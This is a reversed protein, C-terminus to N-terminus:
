NGHNVLCRIAGDIWNQVQPVKDSAIAFGVDILDLEAAVVIV